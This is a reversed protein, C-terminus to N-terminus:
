ANKVQEVIRAFAKPDTVALDALLKRDIEINSKELSRIFGSYNLGFPRVAANIRAIWLTRYERKRTRRDRYAYRMSRQVAEKATKILKSKGGFYGRAAKLIKKRRARSAVNNTSRPM